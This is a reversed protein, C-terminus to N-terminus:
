PLVLETKGPFPWSPQPPALAAKPAAAQDRLASTACSNGQTVGEKLSREVGVPCKGDGKGQQSKGGCRTGDDLMSSDERITENAANAGGSPRPRRDAAVVPHETDLLSQANGQCHGM